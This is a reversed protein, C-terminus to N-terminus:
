SEESEVGNLDRVKSGSIMKNRKSVNEKIKKEDWNKDKFKSKKNM